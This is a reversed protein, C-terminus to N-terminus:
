ASAGSQCTCNQPLPGNIRLTASPAVTVSTSPEVLLVGASRASEVQKILTNTATLCPPLQAQMGMYVSGVFRFCVLM